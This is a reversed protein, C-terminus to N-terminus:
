PFTMGYLFFLSPVLTVFGNGTDVFFGFSRKDAYSEDFLSYSSWLEAWLSPSFLRGAPVPTMFFDRVRDMPRGRYDVVFREHQARILDIRLFLCIEWLAVIANLWLFVALVAQGANFGGGVHAHLAIPVSAGAVLAIVIVSWVRMPPAPYRATQSFRRGM